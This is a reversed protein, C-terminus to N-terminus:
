RSGLTINKYIKVSVEKEIHTEIPVLEYDIGM